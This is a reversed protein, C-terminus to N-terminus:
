LHRGQELRIGLGRRQGLTSLVVSIVVVLGLAADFWFNPILADVFGVRVMSIIFVGLAVGIISGYGGAMRTGGIVAAAIAFLEVREGRLPDGSSFRALQVIGALGALGSSCAFLWIKTANVPVGMQRAAPENGGIAFVWNGIRSRQLILTIILVLGLFWLISIDAVHNTFPIDVRYSFANLFSHDDHLNPIAGRGQGGGGTAGAEELSAIAENATVLAVGRWLLLAGITLIFSPLGLRVILIGHVLGITICTLLTLIVALPAPVGANLIVLGLLSSVALVSGVSLDYQAALMLFGVGLAAIGLEATRILTVTVNIPSLFEEGIVYGLLLFVVIAVFVAITEPRYALFQRFGMLAPSQLFGEYMQVPAPRQAFARASTEAAMSRAATASNRIQSVLRFLRNLM